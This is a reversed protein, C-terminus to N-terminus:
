SHLPQVASGHRHKDIWNEPSYSTETFDVARNTDSQYNRADHSM